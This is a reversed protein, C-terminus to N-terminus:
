TLITNNKVCLDKTKLCRHLYQITRLVFPRKNELVQTFIVNNEVCLPTVDSFFTGGDQIQKGGDGGGRRRSRGEEEEEEGNESKTTKIYGEQLHQSDQRKDEKNKM